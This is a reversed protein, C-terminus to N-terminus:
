GQGTLGVTERIQDWNDQAKLILEAVERVAGNGGRELTVYDAAERAEKVGDAVSVSFGARRLLPIDMWDDGVYAVQEDKLGKEEVLREYCPLKEDFGQHVEEIGLEAARVSTAKSYRGSLLAIRVGSAQLLKLGYGDRIHFSKLEEGAGSMLVRGDTLVGDVDLILLRINRLKEPLGKM